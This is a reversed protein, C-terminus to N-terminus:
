CEEKYKSNVSVANMSGQITETSYLPEFVKFVDYKEVGNLTQWTAAASPWGQASSFPLKKPVETLVNADPNIIGDMYWQHMLKLNEMIDPQELTCVVTRTEDDIKVGM